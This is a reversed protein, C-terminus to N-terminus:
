AISGQDDQALQYRTARSSLNPDLTAVIEGGALLEDLTARLVHYCAGCAHRRIDTFHAGDPHEALYALVMPAARAIAEDRRRQRDCRPKRKAPYGARGPKWSSPRRLEAMTHALPNM